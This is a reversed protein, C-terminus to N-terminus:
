LNAKKVIENYVHEGLAINKLKISKGEFQNIIVNYDKALIPFGRNQKWSVSDIDEMFITTKQNGLRPRQYVLKDDYIYLKSLYRRLATSFRWFLFLWIFLRNVLLFIEVFTPNGIELLFGIMPRHVIRGILLFLIVWLFTKVLYQSIEFHITKAKSEKRSSSTRKNTRTTM